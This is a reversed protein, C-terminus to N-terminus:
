SEHLSWLSVSLVTKIAVQQELFLSDVSSGFRPQDSSLSVERGETTGLNSEGYACSSIKRRTNM